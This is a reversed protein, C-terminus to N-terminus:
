LNSRISPGQNYKRIIPKNKGNHKLIANLLEEKKTFIEDSPQIEKCHTFYLLKIGHSNCLAKKRADREQIVTLNRDCVEKTKNANFSTPYYHQEGQCEISINYQPLYFDLSQLNIWPLYQKNCQYIYEIKHEELLLRIERELHSEKCKPCGKGLLHSKALQTFKGHKPCIIEVVEKESKYVTESYDYKDRHIKKARTVFDEQTLKKHGGCIPCGCGSLHVSPVQLFDGHIPCTIIVPTSTNIYKVKSYNYKVGHKSLAKEIFQETTLKNPVKRQEMSCKPCGYGNLHDNPTKTFEGHIPCIITIKTKSNIYNVKSYDYKGAYLKSCREIFTEQSMARQQRLLEIACQKCGKGCLHDNPRMTFDGHKPCTITIPIKSGQYNVKSYDYKDGHKEKAKRIFDLNNSKTSMYFIHFDRGIKEISSIKM